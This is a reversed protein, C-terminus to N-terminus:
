LGKYLLFLLSATELIIILYLYWFGSNNARARMAHRAEANLGGIASEMDDGAGEVLKVHRLSEAELITSQQYLRRTSAEIDDLLQQETTDAIPEYGSSPMIQSITKM